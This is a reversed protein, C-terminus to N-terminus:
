AGAGRPSGWQIPQGPAGHCVVSVRVHHSGPDCTFELQEVPGNCRACHPHWAPLRIAEQAEVKVQEAAVVAAAREAAIAHKEAATLRTSAPLVMLADDAM